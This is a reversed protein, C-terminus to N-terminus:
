TRKINLSVEIVKQLLSKFTPNRKLHTSLPIILTAIYSPYSSWPYHVLNKVMKEELPNPHIYRSVKLFSHSSEILESGYIGQFLHGGTHLCRNLYIAYRSHLEKMIDKIHHQTTEIQLHIHNTMLCYSHLVFPCMERVDELIALYM